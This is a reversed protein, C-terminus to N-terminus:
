TFQSFNNIVYNELIDTVKEWKEVVLKSSGGARWVDKDLSEDPENKVTFSKPKIFKKVIRMSDPSIEYYHKSGDTTIMFCIDKLILDMKNFHYELINFTRKALEKACQVNMMQNALDDSMVKDGLREFTEPHVNPNRFDFRVIPELYRDESDVIKQKEVKVTIKKGFQDMSETEEDLGNNYKSLCENLKYYNHKDTGIYYRKVIVEIPPMEHKDLHNSIICNDSVYIYNHPIYHYDLIELINRIFRLRIKDTNKVIGERNKSHSYVTPKLYIKNYKDFWKYVRKSNGETIIPARVNLNNKAKINDARMKLSQKYPMEMDRTKEKIIDMIYKMNEDLNDYIDTQITLIEYHFSLRMFRKNYLYLKDLTEWKPDIPIKERESRDYIRNLAVGPDCCLIIYFTEEDLDNKWETYHKLTLESLKGRDQYEFNPYMGKLREILTTKGSGDIGDVCIRKFVKDM